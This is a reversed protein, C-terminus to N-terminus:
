IEGEKIKYLIEIAADLTESGSMIDAARKLTETQEEVIIRKYYYTQVWIQLAVLLILSPLFFVSFKLSCAAIVMLIWIFILHPRIKRKFEKEYRIELVYKLLDIFQETTDM